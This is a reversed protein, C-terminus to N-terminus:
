REIAGRLRRLAEPIKGTPIAGYGLLLGPRVPAGVAFGSLTQVEVEARIARRAIAALGDASLRRAIASVHLGAVAPMPEFHESFDRALVNSVIDHREEYVRRMKHLHRAYGGEDIFRALAAQFPLSTHWDTVYKAKHVADRLWPPTVIFGLRITPLMTKSFSGVYIVRETMDLARLPEIPRGGFRFESDYDDEIIAAAHREAWAILALRRALTMSVGLPYQHSPTVYVLRAQGPMSGVVLGERDVPVGRVKLGLSEFLFRAPQYGPSEMAVRDGPALMARAIVDLAQQTGSTITVDEASARVGRSISVHRAIAERAGPHGAPHAYAASGIAPGRLEHSVLHSWQVHPFLAADPLGSRLDFRAARAFTTSLKIPDWITRSRLAAVAPRHSAPREAAPAVHASVFTGAGVRATVFGEGMLREYAVTVTTRSVRLSRALDRTPPLRDGPRVRGERVAERLQRYIEGSLDRKGILNVHLDTVVAM